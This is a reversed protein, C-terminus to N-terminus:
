HILPSPLPLAVKTTSLIPHVDLTLTRILLPQGGVDVVLHPQLLWCRSGTPCDSVQLVGADIGKM